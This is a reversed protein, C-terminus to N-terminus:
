PSWGSRKKPTAKSMASIQEQLERVQNELEHVRSESRELEVAARKLKRDMGITLGSVELDKHRISEELSQICAEQAEVKISLRKETAQLQHYKELLTSYDSKAQEIGAGMLRVAIRGTGRFDGELSPNLFKRVCLETDFLRWDQVLCCACKKCLEDLQLWEERSEKQPDLKAVLELFGSVVTVDMHTISSTFESLLSATRAQPQSQFYYYVMRSKRADNDSKVLSWIECFLPIPLSDLAHDTLADFHQILLQKSSEQVKTDSREFAKTLYIPATLTALDAQIFTNVAKLLSPCQFYRALSRLAVATETTAQLEGNYIYDLLIPFTTAEEKDLVIRSTGNGDSQEKFNPSSFLTAFYTSSRPGVSLIVKHVNYISEEKSDDQQIIITWDSHSINPDARWSLSPPVQETATEEENLDFFNAGICNSSAM